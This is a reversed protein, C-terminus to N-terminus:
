CREGKGYTVSVRLAECLHILRRFEAFPTM